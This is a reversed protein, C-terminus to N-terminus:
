GADEDESDPEGGSNPPTPPALWKRFDVGLEDSLVDLEADSLDGLDEAMGPIDPGIKSRPVYDGLMELALKRDSHAKYDQTTAVVVLAEYIDARHEWLPAAQILAIADDIKAYKKRWESIQRSSSLGLCETALEEQTKPWRDQKPSAAWAIYCAIRWSFWEQLKIFHGFWDPPTEGWRDVDAGPEVVLREMLQRAGESRAQIEEFSPAGPDQVPEELDLGLELQGILRWDFKRM